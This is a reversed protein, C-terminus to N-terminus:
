VGLLQPDRTAVSLAQLWSYNEPLVAILSRITVLDDATDLTWRVHSFDVDFKVQKIKFEGAGFNPKQGSIYPTVHERLFPHNAKKNAEKLANISMVEVDMGDPYTRDITNSVYDYGGRLYSSVTEDILEPDIMPCDATLRVVITADEQEAAAFLRGLVDQEDGRFVNVGNEECLSVISDDTFNVTTAVIIQDLLDASKVRDLMLQLSPKGAIDMMVKGPLRSSTMRAQIIAVTNTM